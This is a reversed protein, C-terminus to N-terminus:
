EQKLLYKGEYSPTKLVGKRILILMVIGIAILILSLIQSVRIGPVIYLSDTRLGEILFRGIGYGIFYTSLLTGDKVKRRSLLFVVCLLVINWASEYFFTAQHWEGLQEIYVAVPFFQLSPNTIINGFAEQNVFNGWRGIAQGLILSPVALDILTLFPVKKIKCFITAAIIGGIVGGYIALGGQNIAFIKLLDGAYNEWEFAVYYLRAGVIALPIAWFLFDLIMDPKFGRRKARHMALLVGLLLGSAIIIGYWAINFGEIGFLNEFAFRDM